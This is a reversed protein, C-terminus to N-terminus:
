CIVGWNNLGWPRWTPHGSLGSSPVRESRKGVEFSLPRQLGSDLRLTLAVHNGQAITRIPREFM